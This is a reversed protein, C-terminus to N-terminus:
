TEIFALHASQSFAPIKPDPTDAECYFLVCSRREDALISEGRSGSLHSSRTISSTEMNFQKEKSFLIPGGLTPTHDRFAEYVVSRNSALDIFWRLATALLRM